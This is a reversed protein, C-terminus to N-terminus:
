QLEITVDNEFLFSKKEEFEMKAKAMENMKQKEIMRETIEAVGAINDNIYPPISRCCVYM